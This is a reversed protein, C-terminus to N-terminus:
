ATASKDYCASTGPTDKTFLYLTMGKDDVLFSTFQSNKRPAVHAPQSPM